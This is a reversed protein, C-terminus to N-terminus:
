AEIFALGASPKPNADTARARFDDLDNGATFVGGAGSLVIASVDTDQNAKTVAEALANYMSRTLANKKEPRNIVLHLVGGSQQVDIM